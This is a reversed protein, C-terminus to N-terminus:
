THSIADLVNLKGARRAPFFAAILGAIGAIVVYQIIQAYPITITKIFSNPVASAAAVGFIIGLVVGMLAGFVAIIAAEWRVMRRLQRRTMGVARLLGLERTREFVSLALTNAIGMLAILLAFALFGTIVALFSDLQQKTSEEFEAKTEAKIQPFNAVVRDVAAQGAAADVGEALRASVFGDSSSPFHREFPELDIVWNGLISADAYIAAITFDEVQGDVFTVPVTDGVSFDHDEASQEYVLLSNPGLDDLSGEQVDIDLHRSFTDLQTGSIAKTKADIQVGQDVFRYPVVSDIEPQEALEESFSRPIGGFAGAGGSDPQIFYDATVASGIIDLFTTRLSAGVVSAMSVLALGIMLAAATSSTRQPNRAANERSLRGTTKYVGQIPAGLAKAVPRAVLPSLLNIGIFVALAGVSLVTLLPATDLNGFLGWGMLVAGVATVIVGITLRRKMSTGALQYDDRMAAIPPVRRAKRAPALSALLTVGVGVVVAVIVTRPAIVLPGSPLSFGIADFLARLGYSLLVGVGIGIVTSVAGIVFSELLVSRSVQRGTAGIARLLALEKVRQGIVIQFTNNILFASVVLTIIAFALLINGFVSSIQGFADRGEEVTVERDVAEVGSPLVEALRQEVTARDVGDDVKVSITQFQGEFGLFDQATELDFASLTALVDTDESNFAFIGVLEFERNGATPSSITYTQGVQFDDEDAADKDLAFEGPGEPARGQQIIFQGLDPDDEWNVGLLPPGLSEVPEGDATIPVVGPMSINPVAAKVGETDQVLPLISDDIRPRSDENGFEQTARVTLDVEGQLEDVLDDFTSRLSDAVVFSSVIFSVGLVIAVSTLALRLKRAFLSKVTLNWM